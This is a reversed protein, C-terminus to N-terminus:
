SSSTSRSSSSSGGGFGRRVVTGRSDVIDANGIPTRSYGTVRGRNLSGGYVWYPYTGGVRTTSTYCQSDPLVNGYQDVCRRVQRQAGCGTLALAAISAVLVVPVSQSKKM